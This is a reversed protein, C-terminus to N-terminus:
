VTITKASTKQTTTTQTKTKGGMKTPHTNILMKQINEQVGKRHTSLGYLRYKSLLDKNSVIFMWKNSYKNNLYSIKEKLQQQKKLLNGTEIELAYTTNNFRFTIDADRTEHEVIDSIEAITELYKKSSWVLFTHTISHNLVPKVLVTIIEKRSIDYENAQKYGEDKLILIEETSLENTLYVKNNDIDLSNKIAYNNEEINMLEQRKREKANYIEKEIITKQETLAAIDEEYKIKELQQRAQVKKEFFAEKYDKMSEKMFITSDISEILRSLEESSLDFENNIFERIINKETAICLKKIRLRERIEFIKKHLVYNYYLIIALSILAISVYEHTLTKMSNNTQYFFIAIIISFITHKTIKIVLIMKEYENMTM